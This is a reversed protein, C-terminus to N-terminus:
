HLKYKTLIELIEGIFSKRLKTSPMQKFNLSYPNKDKVLHFIKCLSETKKKSSYPGIILAVFPLKDLDFNKQYVAHNKIDIISPEM